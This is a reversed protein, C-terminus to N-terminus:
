ERGRRRYKYIVRCILSIGGDLIDGRAWLGRSRERAVGPPRYGVTGPIRARSRRVRYLLGEQPARVNGPAHRRAVLVARWDGKGPLGMISARLVLLPPLGPAPAAEAV